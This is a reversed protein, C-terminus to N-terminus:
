FKEVSVHNFLYMLINILSDLHYTFCTNMHLGELKRYTQFNEYYMTSPFFFAEKWAELFDVVLAM